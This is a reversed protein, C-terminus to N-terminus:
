SLYRELFAAMVSDRIPDSLVLKTSSLTYLQRITEDPIQAVAGRPKDHARGDISGVRTIAEKDAVSVGIVRSGQGDAERGPL